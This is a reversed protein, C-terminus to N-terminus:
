ACELVLRPLSGFFKFGKETLKVKVWTDTLSRSYHYYQVLEFYGDEIGAVAIPGDGWFFYYLLEAGIGKGDLQPERDCWPTVFKLYGATRDEVQKAVESVWWGIGKETPYFRYYNFQKLNENKKLDEEKWAPRIDRQEIAGMDILPKLWEVHYSTQCQRWDKSDMFLQNHEQRQLIIEFMYLLPPVELAEKKTM